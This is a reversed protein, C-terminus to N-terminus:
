SEGGKRRVMGSLPHDKERTQKACAVAGGPRQGLKEKWGKNQVKGGKGREMIRRNTTM